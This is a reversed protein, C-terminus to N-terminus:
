DLLSLRFHPRGAAGEQYDADLFIRKPDQMLAKYVFFRCDPLVQHRHFMLIHDNVPGYNPCDVAARQQSALNAHSRARGEHRAYCCM